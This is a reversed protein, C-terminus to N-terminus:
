KEIRKFRRRKRSRERVKAILFVVLLTAGSIGVLIAFIYFISNDGGPTEGLAFPTLGVEEKASYENSEATLSYWEARDFITRNLVDRPPYEIEYLDNSARAIELSVSSMSVDVVTENEDYFTAYVRVLKAPLYGENEVVGYISQNDYKNSVITVSGERTPVEQYSKVLVEYTKVMSAKAPDNLYVVFPSKRDLPLSALASQSDVTSVVNHNADYFTAELTINGISKDGTNKIEGVVSYHEISNLFGSSSLISVNPEASVLNLSGRLLFAFQGVAIILILMRIISLTIKYYGRHLTKVM